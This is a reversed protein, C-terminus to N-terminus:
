VKRGEKRGETHMEREERRRSPDVVAVGHELAEGSLGDKSLGREFVTEVFSDVVTWAM